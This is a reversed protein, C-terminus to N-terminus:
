NKCILSKIKIKIDQKILIIHFMKFQVIYSFQIQYSLPFQSQSEKQNNKLILVCITLKYSNM